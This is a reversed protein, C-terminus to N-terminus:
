RKRGGKGFEEGFMEKFVKEATPEDSLSGVDIGQATPINKRLVVEMFEEYGEMRPIVNIRKGDPLIFYMSSVAFVFRVGAAALGDWRYERRDRRSLAFIVREEDYFFGWGAMRLMRILLYVATGAWFLGLALCPLPDSSGSLLASFPLASMGGLVAVFVLSLLRDTKRPVCRKM